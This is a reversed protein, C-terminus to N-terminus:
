RSSLRARVAAVNRAALLNECRDARYTMPLPVVDGREDFRLPYLGATVLVELLDPTSYGFRAFASEYAEFFVCDTRRLTDQAGALVYREYGEVDIKLLAVHATPPVIADLTRMPITLGTQNSVVVNQDDQRQSSFAVVGEHDGVALNLPNVNRVRNLALNGQLYTFTRPHAEVAIVRGTDGVCKAAQLTLNGINAGVDVVVDGPRLYRRFIEEDDNRGEPELWLGVSISSPYFRLDFERRRIRILRSVGTTTLVRAVVYRVLQGRRHLDRWGAIREAHPALWRNFTRRASLTV